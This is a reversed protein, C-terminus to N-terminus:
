ALCRARLWDLVADSHARGDGLFTGLLEAHGAGEDLLLEADGGASRVREVFAASVSADVTEDATGHVVLVPWPEDGRVLRAPDAEHWPKPRGMFEEIMPCPLDACLTEFDLVGAVSVLGAIQGEVIAVADRAQRDYACLAALHGGASFGALVAREAGTVELVLRLAAFADERQAPFTHDPVLRYGASAATLGARALYRAVFRYETASGSRWGGGHFFVVPVACAPGDPPQCLVVRQHRDEGYSHVSERAGGALPLDAAAIRAYLLPDM